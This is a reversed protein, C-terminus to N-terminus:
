LRMPPEGRDKRCPSCPCNDLKSTLISVAHWVCCPVSMCLRAAERARDETVGQWHCAVRYTWVDEPETSNKLSAAWHKEANM